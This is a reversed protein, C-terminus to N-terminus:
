NQKYDEFLVNAVTVSQNRKAPKYFMAGAYAGMLDVFNNNREM